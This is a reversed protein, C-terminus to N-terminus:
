YPEGNLPWVKIKSKVEVTENYYYDNVSHASLEDALLLKSMISHTLEKM